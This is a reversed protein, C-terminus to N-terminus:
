AIVALVEAYSRCRVANPPLADPSQNWPRDFLVALAEPNVLAWRVITDYRDDILVDGRVLAKNEAFIVRSGPIGFGELWRVREAHWYASSTWPSTCAYVQARANLADVFEAAGEYAGLNRCWGSTEIRAFVPDRQAGLLPFFNFAGIDADTLKPGGLHFCDELVRSTFDCIVGDVDLLVLKM